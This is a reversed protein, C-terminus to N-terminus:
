ANNNRENIDWYVPCYEESGTAEKRTRPDFYFYSQWFRNPTAIWRYCTDKLECTEQNCKTIDAM